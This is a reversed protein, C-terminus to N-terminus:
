EPPEGFTEEWLLRVRQRLSEFPPAAVLRGGDSLALEHTQARLALYDAKLSACTEAALLGTAELAELQRVNDPYEVLSPHERARSLV